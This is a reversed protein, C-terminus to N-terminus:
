DRSRSAMLFLRLIELLNALLSAVYTFAAATLMTKVGSKEQQEILKESELIKVARKSANFEVPLTILQFVLTACLLIIGLMTLDFLSAIIGIFLVVYGIKSALNVIPVIASRIMMPVYKEKHQIVHGCEHAAIAVSAITANHYVDTSLRVTKRTPDYHDSLKDPTEVILIGKLGNKDLIARAVDFGTVGKKNEKVKYKAYSASVIGQAGLVLVLSVIFLLIDLGM